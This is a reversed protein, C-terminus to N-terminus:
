RKIRLNPLAKRLKQLGSETMDEDPILIRLNSLETLHDLAQDSLRTRSLNLSELSKQARLCRLAEDTLRDCKSLNLKRLNLEELSKMMQDTLLPSSELNLALPENLRELLNLAQVSKRGQIHFELHLLGDTRKIESASILKHIRQLDDNFLDPLYLGMLKEHDPRDVGMFKDHDTIITKSDATFTIRRDARSFGKWYCFKGQQVDLVLGKESAVFRGDPSIALHQYFEEGQHKVRHLIKGTKMDWVLIWIQKELEHLAALYRGDDSLKPRRLEGPETLSWKLKNEEFDWM